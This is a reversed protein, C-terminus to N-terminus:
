NNARRWELEFAEACREGMSAGDLNNVGVTGVGMTSWTDAFQTGASGQVTVIEEFAIRWSYAVTNGERSILVSRCTLFNPASSDVSLGARLVGLELADELERVYQSETQLTIRDDWTVIVRPDVSTVGTLPNREQAVGDVPVWLMVAALGVATLFKM